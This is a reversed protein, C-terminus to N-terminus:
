STTRPLVLYNYGSIVSAFRYDIQAVFDVYEQFNLGLEEEFQYEYEFLIPMRNRNITQVAGRMALLDGGQVDVKMFSIPESIGLSDITITPVPRGTQGAYNIGYSGYTSFRAFDQEPFYLTQGAVDHVAGFTPIIRGTRNNAAINKTLIEFVFDDADFSYVKGEPGVIDSLLVSMQGFNAGVDLVASGPRSYKRAIDLVPKDFIENSRIASAICDAQADRPLYYKGTATEVYDLARTRKTTPPPVYRVIDIGMRQLARRIVTKM